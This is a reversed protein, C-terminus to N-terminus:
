YHRENLKKCSGNSNKEGLNLRWGGVYLRWRNQLYPQADFHPNNHKRHKRSIYIGNCRRAYQRKSKKKNEVVNEDNSCSAALTVMAALALVSLINKKKM